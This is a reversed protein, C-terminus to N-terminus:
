IISLIESEALSNLIQIQITKRKKCQNKPPDESFQVDYQEDEIARPFRNNSRDVDGTEWQSDLEVYDLPASLPILKSFTNPNKRWIDVPLRITEKQGNQYHLTVPVPSVLGGVNELDIRIYSQDWKLMQKDEISAEAMLKDFEELDEDTVDLADYNTYFDVLEPYSDIYKPASENGNQM